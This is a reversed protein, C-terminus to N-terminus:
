GLEVEAIGSDPRYRFAFLRSGLVVHVVPVLRALERDYDSPENRGRPHSHFIGLFQMGAKEIQSLARLQEKPDMEFRIRPTTSTNTMSIFSSVEGIATRGALLGCAENPAELLTANYLEDRVHPLLRVAVAEERMTM